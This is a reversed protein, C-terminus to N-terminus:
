YNLVSFSLSNAVSGDPNVVLECTASDVASTGLALIKGNKDLAAIGFLAKYSDGSSVLSLKYNTVDKAVAFEPMESFVAMAAKTSEIVVKAPDCDSAFASFSSLVVLGLIFNKM